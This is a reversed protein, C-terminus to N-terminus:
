KGRSHKCTDWGDLHHLKGCSNCKWIEGHCTDFDLVRGGKYCGCQYVRLKGAIRNEFSGVNFRSVSFDKCPQKGKNMRAIFLPATTKPRLRNKYLRM